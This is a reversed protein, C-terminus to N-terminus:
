KGIIKKTIEVFKEAGSSLKIGKLYAIGITRSYNKKFFLKKIKPPLVSLLMEPMISIGLNEAVMSIIAQDVEMEYVVKMPIKEKALLKTVDRDISRKPMIWREDALQEVEITTFEALRHDTSIICVLPDNLLEEFEAKVPATASLFGVDILRSLLWEEIQDYNGESIEIKIGPYNKEFYALISPLFTISVSPLVGIRVTGILLGKLDAIENELAGQATLIKLIHRYVIKGEETLSLQKQTRHFLSLGLENELNSITHSISSQTLNMKIGTATFSGTEVLNQFTIYQALTPMPVEKNHIKNM